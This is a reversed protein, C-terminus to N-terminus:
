CPATIGNHVALSRAWMGACNVVVESAVHGRPTTVGTVAGQRMTVTTVLTDEMIRAGRARAGAALAQTLDAPIVRGDHPIVMAGVLDDTRCLPWLRGVEAASVIHAEIGVYKGLAVSRKFQTLREARRAVILSGCEKWNTSVGTEAELAAYLEASQRVLKAM